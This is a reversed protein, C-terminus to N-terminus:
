LEVCPGFEEKPESVLKLAPFPLLFLVLSFSDRFLANVLAKICLAATDRCVCLVSHQWQGCNAVNSSALEKKSFCLVLATVKLSFVKLFLLDQLWSPLIQAQLNHRVGVGSRLSTESTLKLVM